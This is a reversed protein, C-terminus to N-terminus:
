SPKAGAGDEHATLDIAMELEPAWLSGPLRKFGANQYSRMAARNSPEVSLWVRRCGEERAVDLAIRNLATGIGRNRASQHVFNALEVVGDEMPVLMVHAVLRGDMEAVLHKGRALVRDLWTRTAVPGDPPLGQAGRKPDFDAYMAELARRDTSALTRVRFTRAQKDQILLDVGM